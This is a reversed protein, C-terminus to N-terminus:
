LSTSNAIQLSEQTQKGDLTHFSEGQQGHPLNPLSSTSSSSVKHFIYSGGSIRRLYAVSARSTLRLWSILLRRLPLSPPIPITPNEYQLCHFFASSSSTASSTRSYIYLCVLDHVFSTQFIMDRAQSKFSMFYEYERTRVGYSDGSSTGVTTRKRCKWIM